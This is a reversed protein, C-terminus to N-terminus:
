VIWVRNGWVLCSGRRSSTQSPWAGARHLNKSNKIMQEDSVRGLFDDRLVRSEELIEQVQQLLDEDVVRRMADRGLLGQGVRPELLRGDGVIPGFRGLNANLAQPHLLLSTRLSHRVHVCSRQSLQLHSILVDM